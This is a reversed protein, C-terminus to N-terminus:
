RIPSTTQCTTTDKYRHWVKERKISNMLSPQNEVFYQHYYVRRHGLLKKFGYVNLQKQFSKWRKTQFYFPILENEFISQDYIAFSKGDNRWSIISSHQEEGLIMRLLEPFRKAEEASRDINGEVKNSDRENQPNGIDCSIQGVENYSSANKLELYLAIAKDQFAVQDHALFSADGFNSLVSSLSIDLYKSRQDSCMKQKKSSYDAMKENNESEDARDDCLSYCIQQLLDNGFLCDDVLTECKRKGFM